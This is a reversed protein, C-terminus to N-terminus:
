CVGQYSYAAIRLREERPVGDENEEDKKQKEDSM